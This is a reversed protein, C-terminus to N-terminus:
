AGVGDIEKSDPQSLAPVGKALMGPPVNSIVAAGAGIVADNGIEVGHKVSAGIGIWAREGVIVDGGLHAGPAVHVGMGLRCGHDVTAGTNIICGPGLTAGPNIAAQAFVVTGAGLIAYRSVSAHAHLIPPAPLAMDFCAQLLRLRSGVHGIAVVVADFDRALNLEKTTGIIEFGLPNSLTGHRDDLFCIKSWSGSTV